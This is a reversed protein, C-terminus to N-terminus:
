WDSRGILRSHKQLGNHVSKVDAYAEQDLLQVFLSFNVPDGKNLTANLLLHHTRKQPAGRRAPLAQEQAGLRACGDRHAENVIVFDGDDAQRVSPLIGGRIETM